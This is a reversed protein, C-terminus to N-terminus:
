SLYISGLKLPLPSQTDNTHRNTHPTPTDRESGSHSQIRRRADAAAQRDALIIINPKFFLNCCKPFGCKLVHTHTKKKKKSNKKEVDCVSVCWSVVYPLPLHNSPPKPQCSCLQNKRKAKKTAANRSTKKSFTQKDKSKCVEM